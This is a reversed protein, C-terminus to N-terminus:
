RRADRVQEDHLAVCVVLKDEAGDGRPVAEVGSRQRARRAVADVLDVAGVRAVTSPARERFQVRV